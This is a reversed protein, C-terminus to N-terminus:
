SLIYLYIQLKLHYQNMEFFYYNLAFSLMSIPRKLKGSESSTAATALSEVSLTKIQVDSNAVLNPLDDHYFGGQISPLYASFILIFLLTFASVIFISKNQM